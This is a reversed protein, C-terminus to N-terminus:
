AGRRKGLYTRKMTALAKTQKRHCKEVGKMRSRDSQIEAAQTLTRHDDEARYDKETM